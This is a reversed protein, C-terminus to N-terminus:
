FRESEPSAVDASELILTVDIVRLSACGKDALLESAEVDIHCGEALCPKGSFAVDPFSSGFVGDKPLPFVGILWM